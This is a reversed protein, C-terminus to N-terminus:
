NFYDINLRMCYAPETDGIQKVQKIKEPYKSYITYIIRHVTSIVNNTHSEQPRSEPQRCDPSNNERKEAQSLPAPMQLNWKSYEMFHNATAM